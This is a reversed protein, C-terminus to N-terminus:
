GIRGVTRTAERLLTAPDAGVSMEEQEAQEAISRHRDNQHNMLADWKSSRSPPTALHGFSIDRIRFRSNVGKLSSPIAAAGGDYEEDSTDASGIPESQKGSTVTACSSTFVPKTVSGSMAEKFLQKGLCASADGVIGTIWRESDASNGSMSWNTITM